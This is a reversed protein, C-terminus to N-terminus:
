RGVELRVQARRLWVQGDPGRFDAVVELPGPPWDAVIFPEGVPHDEVGSPIPARPVLVSSSDDTTRLRVELSRAGAHNTYVVAVRDAPALAPATVSALDDVDVSGGRDRLRLVRVGLGEAPVVEDDGRALFAAVEPTSQRPPEAPGLVLASAAGAMTAAVAFLPTWRRQARGGPSVGLVVAEARDLVAGPVADADPHLARELSAYRDYLARCPECTRLHEFLVRREDADLGREFQARVRRRMLEHTRDTM